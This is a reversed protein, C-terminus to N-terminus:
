VDFGCWEKCLFTAELWNLLFDKLIVSEWIMKGLFFAIRIVPNRKIRKLKFYLRKGVNHYYFTPPQSLFYAMILYIM